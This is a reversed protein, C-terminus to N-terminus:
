GVFHFHLIEMLILWAVLFFILFVYFKYSQVQDLTCCKKILPGVPFDDSLEEKLSKLDREAASLGESDKLLVCCQLTILEIPFKSFM